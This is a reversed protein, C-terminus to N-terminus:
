IKVLSGNWYRYRGTVHVFRLINELRVSKEKLILLENGFRDVNPPVDPIVLIDEERVRVVAYADNLKYDKGRIFTEVDKEHRYVPRTISIRPLSQLVTEWRHLNAGEAQYLLIFVEIPHTHAAPHAAAEDSVVRKVLEDANLDSAFRERAVRLKKGIGQLFLSKDWPGQDIATDLSKLIELIKKAEDDSSPM